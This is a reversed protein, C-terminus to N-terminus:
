TGLAAPMLALNLVLDAMQINKVSTGLRLRGVHEKAYQKSPRGADLTLGNSASNKLFFVTDSIGRSLTDSESLDFASKQGIRVTM